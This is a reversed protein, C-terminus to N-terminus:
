FTGGIGSATPRLRLGGATAGSAPTTGGFDVLLLSVGSLVGLGVTVGIGVNTLTQSDRGADLDAQTRAGADFAERKDLTNMGSWVTFAGAVLTLGGGIAPVIWPLQAKDSKPPLPSPGPGGDGSRGAVVPPPPALAVSAVAGASVDVDKRLPADGAKGRVVHQGPAVYSIEAQPKDDDLTIETITAEAHIEIRGLQLSLAKLETTAQDRDKADAPAERLYRAYQNAARITDGAKQWSRAANWLPAHHPKAKYAEEFAKAAHTFDGQTFARQGEAFQAAARKGADDARAPAAVLTITAFLLILAPRHWGFPRMRTETYLWDVRHVFGM